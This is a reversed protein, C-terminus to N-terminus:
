NENKRGAMRKLTMWAIKVDASPGASRIYELDYQVKRRVDQLTEDYKHAVQALGTIGPKVALRNRYGEVNESLYGVFNPREPRPGILSMDGQLVNFLQPLEDLHTKRLFRGVRTVRPDNKAAWVAGTNKEADTVMSRFKLMTFRKGDLGVREQRYIAPGKSELRVAAAVVAMLPAAIMLGALAGLFDVVPKVYELYIRVRRAAVTGLVLTNGSRQVDFSLPLPGPNEKTKEWLVSQGSAVRRRQVFFKFAAMFAALNMLTFMYPISTIRSKFSPMALGAFALCYFGMQATFLLTAEPSPAALSFFLMAIMAFPALLRLVKHSFVQFAIGVTNRTLFRDLNFYEQYNGTLTRVKRKFEDRSKETAREFALAQAEFVVRYGRKVAGLPIAVDDLITSAAPAQYLSRRIAYIAGTAGLMSYLRGELARLMKEYKWYASVGQTSGNTESGTMMLQGSVAGVKPDAFNATLHRIAQVDFMESADTFVLIEGKAKAALQNLVSVKGRRERFDFLQVREANMSRVIEVTRDSSGDSGILIELRDAPYDLSLLNEIKERIVREENYAALIVSVSPTMGQKKVERGFLRVLVTLLIPYGIYTYVLLGLCSWVAAECFLQFWQYPTREQSTLGFSTAMAIAAVVLAALAIHRLRIAPKQTKMM